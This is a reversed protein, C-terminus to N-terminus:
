SSLVPGLLFSSAEGPISGLQAPTITAKTSEASDQEFCLDRKIESLESLLSGLEQAVPLRPLMLSASLTAEQPCVARPGPPSCGM